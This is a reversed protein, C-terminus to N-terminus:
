VPYSNLDDLIKDRATRGGKREHKIKTPLTDIFTEIEKKKDKVKKGRAQVLLDYVDQRTINGKSEIDSKISNKNRLSAM